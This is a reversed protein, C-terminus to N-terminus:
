VSSNRLTTRGDRPRASSSSRVSSDFPSRPAFTSSSRSPLKDSASSQSPVASSYRRGSSVLTHPRSFSSLTDLTASIETSSKPVQSSERPKSAPMGQDERGDCSEHGQKDGVADERWRSGLLRVEVEEGEELMEVQRGVKGVTESEVVEGAFGEGRERDESPAEVLPEVVVDDFDTRAREVEEGMEDRKGGGDGGDGGVEVLAGEGEQVAPGSDGAQFRQGEEWRSEM